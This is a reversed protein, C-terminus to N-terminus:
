WRTHGGEAAVISHVLSLIFEDTIQSWAWKFAEQMESVTRSLKDMGRILRKIERWPNEIPNLDPSFPPWVIPKVNHDAWYQVTKAAKHPSANDEMLLLESYEQLYVLIQPIVHEIYSAATITGWEKQWVLMPGKGCGSISGWMM